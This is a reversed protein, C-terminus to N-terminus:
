QQRLSFSGFYDGAAADSATLKVQQSWISGSRVFVYAAGKNSDKCYAGVVATDGSISVSHGFYDSASPDSATLKIQQSWISGSRVFVYAAGTHSEKGSAGVVATDSSVSVSTGFYDDAVADSATLKAQQNWISGSRVFVYAAGKNSNKGSAGVVATNSNVSVSDGFYDNAAADSATLKAQQNWISGSRVFVYAAGKHSDKYYAGVVATDGSVSVSNGFYDDAAADSATLKAQQNWITGSRVFVYAAGKRSNKYYAGVVATDGSVSVSIGFDDGAAADSATLKAQQNWNSGSRVFVYASNKGAAGVVATDGSVSVSNGFCDGDM